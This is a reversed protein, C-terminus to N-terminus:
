LQTVGADQMYRRLYREVRECLPRDVKCAKPLADWVTAAAIPRTMIAKDGLILVREIQREIEPSLNLPLYPSVGRSWAPATICLSVLLTCTLSAGLRKTMVASVLRSSFSQEM